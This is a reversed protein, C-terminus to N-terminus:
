FLLTGLITTTLAITLNDIDSIPLSEILTAAGAVIVVPLYYLKIPPSFYGSSVFIELMIISIFCGALFMGLSGTWSKNKNWPLRKYGFRSGLIDAFGDGGCLIMLAVIGVPSDVWFLITLTIFVIGYLLPGKLMEHRDGTRSIAQVTTKGPIM